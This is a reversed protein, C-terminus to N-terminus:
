APTHGLTHTTPALVAHLRTTGGSHTRSWSVTGANLLQTGLGKREGQPAVGQNTVTLVVGDTTRDLVVDVDRAQGHRYANGVAERILAASLTLLETDRALASRAEDSVNMHVDLVGAWVAQLDHTFSEISEESRESSELGRVADEVPKLLQEVDERNLVGFTDTNALRAAAVILSSQVDGHLVEAIRNQHMWVQSSIRSVSGALETNLARLEQERVSAAERALTAVAIVLGASISTLLGGVALVESIRGGAATTGYSWVAVGAILQYVVTAAVIQGFTMMPRVRNTVSKALWIVGAGVLGGVFSTRLADPLALETSLIAPTVAFLTVGQLVPSLPIPAQVKTIDARAPIRNRVSPQPSWTRVEDHLRRSLPKVSSDILESIRSVALAISTRDMSSASLTERLAVVPALVNTSIVDLIRQREARVIMELSGRSQELAGATAELESITRRYRVNEEIARALLLGTLLMLLSSGVPRFLSGNFQELNTVHAFVTILVGRVLGISIFALVGWAPRAAREHVPLVTKRLILAISLALVHAVVSIGLWKLPQGQASLGSSTWVTAATMVLFQWALTRFSLIQPGTGGELFSRTASRFRSM